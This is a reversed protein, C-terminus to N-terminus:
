WDPSPTAMALLHELVWGELGTSPVRVRVWVYKDAEVEPGLVELLEGNNVGGISKYEFGAGERILM